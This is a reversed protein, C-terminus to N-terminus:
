HTTTARDLSATLPTAEPVDQLRPAVIFFRSGIGATNGADDTVSWAISHPGPSLGATDLMFYGIAGDSNARDPFRAAIDDQCRGNVIAARCQNYVPHGLPVGDVFVWITSGDKPILRGPAGLAWGFVPVVGSVSGGSAPTDLNGFPKTAHANDAVIRRSGLTRVKGEVDIAVAHLTFTGNGGVPLGRVTDPLMNTLVLMGWGARRNLPASPYRQQIDPRAGPQFVAEGLFVRGNPQVAAATDTRVRDRWIQVRDVELDDIAWGTIAIAGSVRSGSAPTDFSGSPPRSMGWRYCTLSVGIQLPPNAAGAPTVTITAQVNGSAPLLGAVNVVKVTMSQGGVGHSPTVVLWPVNARATWTVSGAGSQPLTVMQSRTTSLITGNRTVAAFQLTAQDAALVPLPLGQRVTFTQGDIAITGSRPTGDGADLTFTVIGPGLGAPTGVHIWSDRSAATWGCGPGTTVTVQGTAMTGGPFAQGMRDLSFQCLAPLGSFGHGWTMNTGGGRPTAYTELFSVVEVPTLTPRAQLVLAAEGAVHPAAQSTGFFRGYSVTDGGDPGALEPKLRGDTTPGRSSFPEIVTPTQWNAAGVAVMGPSASDGPTGISHAATRIALPQGTFAQMQVWEPNGSTRKIALYYTGARPATFFLLELPVSGAGGQITNSYAVLSLAGDYVYLDLDRAASGWSDQWRLQAILTEGSALELANINVGPQFEVFGDSDINPRAGWWNSRGSNGASNIWVIGRSVATSVARLPSSSDISTGDGPGDWTWGLSYNIVQVGQAAMWEVTDLLDLTSVPNAIYIAARPAIDAITEAVATGHVSVSECADLFSSSLAPASYCRAGAVPPLERGVLSAYNVFGEDIIGIKVGAGSLGAAHWEPVHQLTAGQTFVDARARRLSEIRTIGPDRAIDDVLTDPVWAEVVGDSANIVTAGGASLMGEIRAREAGRRLHITVPLDGGRSPAGADRATAAMGRRLQTRLQQLHSTIARAPPKALRAADQIAAPDLERRVSQAHAAGALLVGALALAAPVRRRARLRLRQTAVREL